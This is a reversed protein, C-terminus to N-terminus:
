TMVVELFRAYKYEIDDLCYFTGGYEISVDGMYTPFEGTTRTPRDMTKSTMPRERRNHAAQVRASVRAGGATVCQM